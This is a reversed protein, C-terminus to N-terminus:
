RQVDIRRKEVWKGAERREEQLSREGKNRRRRRKSKWEDDSVEAVWGDMKGDKVNRNEPTSKYCICVKLMSIGVQKEKGMEM